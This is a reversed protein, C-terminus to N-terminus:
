KAAIIDLCIQRMNSVCPEHKRENIHCQDCVPGSGCMIARVSKEAVNGCECRFKKLSKKSCSRDTSLCNAKRSRM